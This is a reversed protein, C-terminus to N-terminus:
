DKLRLMTITHAIRHSPLLQPEFGWLPVVRACPPGVHSYLDSLVHSLGNAADLRSLRTQFPASHFSVSGGARRSTLHFATGPPVPWEANSEYAAVFGGLSGDALCDGDPATPPREVNM